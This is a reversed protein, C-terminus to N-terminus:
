KNEGNKMREDIKKKFLEVLEPKFSFPDNGDTDAKKKKKYNYNNYYYGYYNYNYNRAPPKVIEELKKLKLKFSSDDLCKPEEDMQYIGRSLEQYKGDPYKEAFEKPIETTYFVLDDVKVYNMDANTVVVYSEDEVTDYIMLNGFSSIPFGAFREPEHVLPAVFTGIIESDTDSEFYFDGTYELVEGLERFAHSSGNHAVFYRNRVFFPHVNRLCVEGISAFRFHLMARENPYLPITGYYKKVIGREPLLIGVGDKQTKEFKKLITEKFDKFVKEDIKNLLFLLRCM